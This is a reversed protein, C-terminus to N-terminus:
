FAFGVGGHSFNPTKMGPVMTNDRWSNAKGPHTPYLSYYDESVLASRYARFDNGLILVREVRM